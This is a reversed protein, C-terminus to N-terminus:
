DDSHRNGLRRGSKLSSHRAKADLRRRQSAKTPKTARRAREVRLADSLRERLRERALTRNRLQSREDGATVTVEVGLRHLLRARQTDSLSPSSAVDFTVSARTNATNAHQGGPGGTASFRWVLEAAPITLSPSVVLADDEPPPAPPTPDPPV